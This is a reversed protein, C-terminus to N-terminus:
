NAEVVDAWSAVKILSSVPDPANTNAVVGVRTVGTIPNAVPVETM